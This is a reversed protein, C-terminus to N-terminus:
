WVQGTFSEELPEKSTPAIVLGGGVGKFLLGSLFDHVCMSIWHKLEKRERELVEIRMRSEQSIIQAEKLTGGELLLVVGEGKVVV